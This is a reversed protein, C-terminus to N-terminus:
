FIHVETNDGVEVGVVDADGCRVHRCIVLVESRWIVCFLGELTENLPEVLTRIKRRCHALRYGIGLENAYRASNNSLGPFM